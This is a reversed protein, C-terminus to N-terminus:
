LCITLLAHILMPVYTFKHLYIKVIDFQPNLM